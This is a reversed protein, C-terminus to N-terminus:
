VIRNLRREASALTNNIEMFRDLLLALEEAINCPEQRKEGGDSNIPSATEDYASAIRDVGHAINATTERHVQVQNDLRSLLADLVKPTETSGQKESM